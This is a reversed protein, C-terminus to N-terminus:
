EKDKKISNMKFDIKDSICITGGAKRDPGKAHFIKEQGRVKLRHKNKVKLSNGTSLLNITKAKNDLRGSQAKSQIM